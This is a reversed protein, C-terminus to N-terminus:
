EKPWSLLYLLGAIFPTFVIFATAWAVARRHHKKAHNYVVYALTFYLGIGAIASYIIWMLSAPIEVGIANSILQKSVLFLTVLIGCLLLWVILEKLGDSVKLERTLPNKNNNHENKLRNGCFPCYLVGDTANLESGCKTCKM